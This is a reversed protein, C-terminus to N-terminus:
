DGIEAVVCKRLHDVVRWSKLTNSAENLYEDVYGSRLHPGNMQLAALRADALGMEPYVGLVMLELAGSVRNRYRYMWVKRGTPSVRLRLGKGGSVAREYVAATAHLARIQRDQSIQQQTTM